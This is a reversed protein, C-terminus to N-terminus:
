GNTSQIQAEHSMSRKHDSPVERNTASVPLGALFGHVCDCMFTRSMAGQTNTELSVTAGHKVHTPTGSMHITTGHYFRKGIYIKHLYVKRDIQPDIYRQQKWFQSYPQIPGRPHHHPWKRCQVSRTCIKEWRGKGRGLCKRQTHPLPRSHPWGLWWLGLGVPCRSWGTQSSNLSRDQHLSSM